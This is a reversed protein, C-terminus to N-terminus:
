DASSSLAQRNLDEAIADRVAPLVALSRPYALKRVPVQTAVDSCFALHQGLLPKGFLRGGVTHRLLALASAQPSLREVGVAPDSGAPATVLVYLVAPPIHEAVLHVPQQEAPLKLQPFHPRAVCRGAEDLGWPLTDDIVRRWGAQGQRDLYGALMSKGAGSEGLFAVLRDGFLVVSAHIAFTGGLALALILPAGLATAALLEPPTSEATAREVIRGEFSIIYRALGEAELDYGAAGARCVVHRYGDGILGQGDFITAAAEDPPPASLAASWSAAEGAAFRELSPHALNTVLRAGAVRYSRPPENRHTLLEITRSLTM